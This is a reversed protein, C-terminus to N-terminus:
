VGFMDQSVVHLRTSPLWLIKHRLQMKDISECCCCTIQVCYQKEWKLTSVDHPTELNTIAKKDYTAYGDNDKLNSLASPNPVLFNHYLKLLLSSLRM